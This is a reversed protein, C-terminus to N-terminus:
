LTSECGFQCKLAEKAPENSEFKSNQYNSFFYHFLVKRTLALLRFANQNPFSQLSHDLAHLLCLFLSISLTICFQLCVSAVTSNTQLSFNFNRTFNSVSWLNLYIGHLNIKELNSLFLSFFSHVKRTQFSSFVM